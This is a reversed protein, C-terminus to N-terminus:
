GKGLERSRLTAAEVAALLASRFGKAELSRLGAATTGGPSTVMDKLVSPHKGTELFLKATGLMTQAAMLLATEKSLGMLVGGDALAELAMFFYAPGSGSLGTTVDMLAEDIIVVRGLAKFITETLALDAETARKGGAIATMGEGVLVPTNPMVRVVRATAPLRAEWFETSGGAVISIILKEAAAPSIEALLTELVQPKVAVLVAKCNALVAGNNPMTNVGLAAAEQRRAPSPDFAFLSSAALVQRAIGGNLIAMGMKGCGIIGLTGTITKVM